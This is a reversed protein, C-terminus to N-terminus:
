VGARREADAHKSKNVTPEVIHYNVKFDLTIPEKDKYMPGPPPRFTHQSGESSQHSYPIGNVKVRLQDLRFRQEEPLDKCIPLSIEAVRGDRSRVEFSPSQYQSDYGVYRTSWYNGRVSCQGDYYKECALSIELPDGTGQIDFVYEGPLAKVPRDIKADLCQVGGVIGTCGILGTLFCLYAMARIM